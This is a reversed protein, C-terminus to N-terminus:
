KIVGSMPGKQGHLRVADLHAWARELKELVFGLIDRGSHAQGPPPDPIMDVGLARLKIIKGMAVGQAMPPLAVSWPLSDLHSKGPADMEVLALAFPHKPTGDPNSPIVAAYDFHKGPPGPMKTLDIRYMDEKTGTGVIRAIVWGLM